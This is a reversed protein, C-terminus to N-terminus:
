PCREEKHKAIPRAFVEPRLLRFIRLEPSGVVQAASGLGALVEAVVM